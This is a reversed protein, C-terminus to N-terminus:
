TGPLWLHFRSGIVPSAPSMFSIVVTSFSSCFCANRGTGISSFRPCHENWWGNVTCPEYSFRESRGRRAVSTFTNRSPTREALSSGSSAPTDTIGFPCFISPRNKGKSNSGPTIPRACYLYSLILLHDNQRGYPPLM